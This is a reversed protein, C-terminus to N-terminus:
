ERCAEESFSTLAEDETLFCSFVKALNTVTLLDILRQSPALLFLDGGAKRATTYCRIIEGLGAGDFYPCHALNLIINRKGKAVLADVEQKIEVDGDGLLLKGDIDIIAIGNVMRVSYHV